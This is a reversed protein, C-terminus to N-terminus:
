ADNDSSLKEGPHTLYQERVFTEGGPPSPTSGWRLSRWGTSFTDIVFSLSEGQNAPM